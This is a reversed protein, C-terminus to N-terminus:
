MRMCFSRGGEPRHHTHTKLETLILCHDTQVMSIHKVNVCRFLLQLAENGFARDIRAKM